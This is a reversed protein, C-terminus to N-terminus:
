LRVRDSSKLAPYLRLTYVTSLVNEKPTPTFTLENNLFGDLCYNEIQVGGECDCFVPTVMRENPANPRLM